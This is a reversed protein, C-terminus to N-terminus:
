QDSTEEIKNIVVEINVPTIQSAGSPIVLKCSGDNTGVYIEGEEVKEDEKLRPILTLADIVATIDNQMITNFDAPLGSVEVPIENEGYVIHASYGEPLNIVSINSVPLNVMLTDHQEVVAEINVTGDFSEDAIVVGKPLYEKINVSGSVNETAGDVSIIDEPISISSLSDFASGKGAVLVSSPECIVTGTASYGLAAIGVFSANVPIEKTELIEVSARIEKKSLSVAEDEVNNGNADYLLVPSSTTFTENMDAYDISIEATKVKDVKSEPGSVKVVDVVPVIEGPIYGKAVTGQTKVMLKLQKEKKEEIIVDLNATRSSISNIKESYRTTKVEIPVTNMFSLNKLDATAKINDKTLAEIISREATIVVSINESGDAIEFTKGEDTIATANVIEVPIGTYLRTIVPDDVNVVIIWLLIAGIVSLIKLGINNTLKTKMRRGEKGSVSNRKKM